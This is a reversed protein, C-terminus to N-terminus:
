EQVEFVHIQNRFFLKRGCNPCIKPDDEYIHIIFDWPKFKQGCVCQTLPLSEDDNNQFDVKSTVDINM